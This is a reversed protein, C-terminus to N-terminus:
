SAKKEGVAKLTLVLKQMPWRLQSHVKSVPSKLAGLIRALNEERSPMRSLKEVYAKNVFAGEAIGAKVSGVEAEKLFALLTKTTLVADNGTVVALPGQWFDDPIEAGSLDQFTKRALTNKIVRMQAGNDKLQKRLDGAKSVTLGMYDAFLVVAAGDVMTKLEAISTEKKAKTIPIPIVEERPFKRRKGLHDM